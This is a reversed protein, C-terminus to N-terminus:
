TLETVHVLFRRTTQANRDPISLVTDGSSIRTAVIGDFAGYPSLHQQLDRITVASSVFQHLFSSLKSKLNM